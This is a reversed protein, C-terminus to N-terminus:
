WVPAKVLKFNARILGDFLRVCDPVDLFMLLVNSITLKKRRKTAANESCTTLTQTM